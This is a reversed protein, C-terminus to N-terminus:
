YGFEDWGYLDIYGRFVGGCQNLYDCKRCVSGKSKLKNTFGAFDNVIKDGYFM